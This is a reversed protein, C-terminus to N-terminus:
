RGTVAPEPRPPPAPAAIGLAARLATLGAPDVFYSMHDCAVTARSAAPLRDDPVDLISKVSVAVDNPERFLALSAAGHFARKLSLSKWLRNLLSADQDLGELASPIISTNGAIVTYKVGPAPTTRLAKLFPSGPKMQDLSNDIRELGGLVAGLLRAPWAVPLLNNLAMASTSTVWDEATSWPSGGNPTGLMVLHDVFTKGDLGKGTAEVFQRSVLGGMSHAVLTLRKNDTPGLGAERLREGLLQANEEITTHLNEYDFALVVSNRPVGVSTAMISTDGLIGHVFVYVHEAAKVRAQVTAKDKIYIVKGGDSPEAIALIPWDYGLGLPRTVLKHFLIKFSGFVSRAGNAIPDALRDIRVVNRNGEAVLRGLPVHFEGDWSVPLVTEDREIAHPLEIELPTEPTVDDKTCGTEPILELVALGPDASRTSGWTLLRSAGPDAALIPPTIIGGLDRTKQSLNVLKAKAAFKGKSTVTLGGTVKASGHPKVEVAKQPRVTTIPMSRVVFDDLTQESEEDDDRAGLARTASKAAPAEIMPQELKRADFATTSAIVMLIDRTETADPGLEKAISSPVPKGDLAWCDTGPQLLVTGAPLLATTVDYLEGLALIAVHLPKTWRNTVRVRFEPSRWKGDVLAYTLTADNPDLEKTGKPGDFVALEIADSPIRSEPNAANALAEWRAIHALRRVVTAAADARSRAIPETVIQATAAREIRFEGASSLVRYQSSARGEALLPSQALAAKLAAVGADDGTLFVDLTRAQASKVVDALPSTAVPAGKGGLFRQTLLSADASELQPHQDTVHAQVLTAARAHLERYSLKGDGESLTQQLFWSFAGRPQDADYEKAEQADRCAALLVHAAGAAESWGGLGRASPALLQDKPVIFEGLPRERPDIPARRVRVANPARTGSGSHCCDLIVCVHAGSKGVERLLFALEKDALDRVTGTRSDALVLTELLHDPEITWFERAAREQSGHGAYVFLAVDDAKAKTLHDKFAAIVNARKADGDALVKAELKAGVRAELLKKWARVDNVCGQLSPIGAPYRDIGVLLAYVNNAM